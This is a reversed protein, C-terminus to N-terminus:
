TNQYLLHPKHLYFPYLKNSMLLCGLFSSGGFGGITLFGSIDGLIVMERYVVNTIEILKPKYTMLVMLVLAVVDFCLYYNISVTVFIFVKNNNATIYLM